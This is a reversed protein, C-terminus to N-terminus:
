IDKETERPEVARWGMGSLERARKGEIKKWLM